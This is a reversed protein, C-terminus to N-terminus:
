QESQESQESQKLQESKESQESQGSEVSQEFQKFKVAKWVVMLQYHPHPIKMTNFSSLCGSTFPLSIKLPTAGM